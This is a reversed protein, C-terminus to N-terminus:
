FNLCKGNQILWPGVMHAYRHDTRSTQSAVKARAECLATCINAEKGPARV